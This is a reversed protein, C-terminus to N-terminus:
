VFKAICIAIIVILFTGLQYALQPANGNWFTVWAAFLAAVALWLLSESFIRWLQSESSSKRLGAFEDRDIVTFLFATTASMMGLLTLIPGLWTRAAIVLANKDILFLVPLGVKPLQWVAVSLVLACAMDLKTQNHWYNVM